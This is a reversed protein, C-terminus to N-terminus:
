QSREDESRPAEVRALVSGLEVQQGVAIDLRTLVGDAPSTITHEMKMAELWVLPQGAKVSDGVAAGLRIVSGPMPALLSGQHALSDPEGFRSVATFVVAGRPSDVYTQDGYRAVDFATAVSSDDLVVRDPASSLVAVGTDDPLRVGTRTFRYCVRHDTGRDDRFVKHQDCSFVNRWGSPLGGLVPAEARNRAAAALAAAIAALRVTRGDALPASLIDLGHTDFFATDTAGALFAPHRVVNVLLDRNTRVGHVKTRVLAAALVRAAGARTPAYAIVKALMPDYHISVTSGDVVGSDLRIGGDHLPGFETAADPVAFRHIKGAQPQWDSAPDEAYLRVEISHGLPRPTEAPLHEDDATALQLEVLDCGTTLETM